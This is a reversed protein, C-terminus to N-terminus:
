AFRSIFMTQKLSQRKSELLAQRCNGLNARIAERFALNSRYEFATFAVFLEPFGAAM